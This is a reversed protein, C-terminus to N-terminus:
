RVGGPKLTWTTKEVEDRLTVRMPEVSLVRLTAEREGVLVFEDGVAAERVAEDGIIRLWARVEGHRAPQDKVLLVREASEARRLMACPKFSLGTPLTRELWWGTDAVAENLAAKVVKDGLRFSASGDDADELRMPLTMEHVGVFTVQVEPKLKTARGLEQRFGKVSVPVRLEDATPEASLMAVVPQVKGAQAIDLSWRGRADVALRDSGSALLLEVASAHGAEVAVMLPTMLSEPERHFVSAGASLLRSIVSVEGTRVAALLAAGTQSTCLPVLGDVMDRQGERAAVVLVPEGIVDGPKIGAEILVQLVEIRHSVVAARVLDGLKEPVAPLKAGARLLAQLAKAKGAKVAVEVATSGSADAVNPQLGAKEFWRLAELDEAAAAKFFEAVSLSYGRATLEKLADAQPDHCACLLIGGLMLVLVALRSM